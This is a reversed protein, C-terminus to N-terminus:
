LKSNADVLEFITANATGGGECISVVGYRQIEHVGDSFGLFRCTRYIRTLRKGNAVVLECDFRVEKRREMENILTTTIKVGTAGLPHGLACRPFPLGDDDTKKVRRTSSQRHLPM